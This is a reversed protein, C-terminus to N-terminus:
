SIGPTRDIDVRPEQMSEKVNIYTVSIGYSKCHSIINSPVPVMFFVLTRKRVDNGWVKLSELFYFVLIDTIIHTQYLFVSTITKVYIKWLSLFLQVFLGRLCKALTDM